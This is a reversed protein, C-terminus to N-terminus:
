GTTPPTGARGRIRRRGSKPKPEHPAVDETLATDVVEYRKGYESMSAQIVGAAPLALFAMVVGGLAGGILAAAFAAAPHLSMTRRTLHPSLFYNEVQQYVLIYGVVWVADTPQQLLAVLAPALGAIYTGVVPIFEAVLGEFLALPAAFPVGLVRLVVYMGSGNVAALLLRSYFYGGTKEIAVNWIFLVEQQRHPPLRSCVARRLKPGEAVAYFTFLGITAWRFIQGLISAGFGLIGGVLDFAHSAIKSANAKIEAQIKETSIDVGVKAAWRQIKALWGPTAEILQRFGTVVAPVILVLLLVVVAITLVFILGTAAGRRWGHSAFWNVAPEIAFSLFLSLFLIQLFSSLQRALSLILLTGIAAGILVWM